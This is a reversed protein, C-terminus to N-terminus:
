QDAVRDPPPPTTATPETAALELEIIAIDGEMSRGVQTFGHRSVVRLSAAKAEAVTAGLPRRQEVALFAGLAATAVGRGWWPRGLWYGVVRHGQSVFSLVQGAVEGQVLVTRIVVEPDAMIRAWHREHSARDRTAVAALQAAAPDAQHHYFVDVDAPQVERLEISTPPNSM